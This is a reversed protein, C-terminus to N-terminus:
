MRRPAALRATRRQTAIAFTLTDNDVDSGSLKIVKETDEDTTVDQATATPADNAPLVNLTVTATNSDVAGDNAKYTFSDPGNYDAKPTYVLDAGSGTLTGNAPETLVTFSLADGDVDSGALTIGVSGDEDVNDSSDSVTPADNVPNITISITAEASDVEGDNVRFTFSDAGNANPNPTYTFAGISPEFRTIAGKTPQTVITFTLVSGEVDTGNLTGDMATDEEVPLPGDEAFPADNVANITIEVLGAKSTLQGDSVTFTFSDTGNYNENPTYTFAGTAADFSTLTGQLPGEVVAFTLSLNEPDTGSLTGDAPTDEDTTLTGATANPRANV